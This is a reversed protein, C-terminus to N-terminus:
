TGCNAAASSGGGTGADTVSFSTAVSDTTLQKSCFGAQTSSGCCVIDKLANPARGGFDFESVVKDNILLTPSATIQKKDAEDFDKQAYAFGRKPDAMCSAVTGDNVKAEASCEPSKGEKMYCSVYNWYLNKQEERICIQKLNEQAEKDGHMSVIKGDTISGIYKVNFNSALEPQEQLAKAMARQMQLGFPCNSVVFATMSASQVKPLDSCTQKKAAEPAAATSKSGSLQVGSVFFIKGDKTMYSTYPKATGGTGIELTFQYVGSVEKLDKVDKIVVSPDIQKVAAPIKNTKVDVLKDRNRKMFGFVVLGGIVLVSLLVSWPNTQMKQEEAMLSQTDREVREEKVVPKVTTKRKTQRKM